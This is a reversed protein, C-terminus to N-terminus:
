IFVSLACYDHRGLFFASVAQEVTLSSQSGVENPYLDRTVSTMANRFAAQPGQGKNVLFVWGNVADSVRAAAIEAVIKTLAEAGAVAKLISADLGTMVM